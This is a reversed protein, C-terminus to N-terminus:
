ARSRPIAPFPVCLRLRRRLLSRPREYRIMARRAIVKPLLYIEARELIRVFACGLPISGEIIIRGHAAAVSTSEKFTFITLASVIDKIILKLTPATSEETTSSGRVVILGADAIRRLHLSPGHPNITLICTAGIPFREIDPRIEPDIVWLSRITYGVVTLLIRCYLRAAIRPRPTPIRM